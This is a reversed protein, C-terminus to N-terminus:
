GTKDPFVGPLAREERQVRGYPQGYSPLSAAVILCYFRLQIPKGAPTKQCGM